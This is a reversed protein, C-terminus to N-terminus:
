RTCRDVTLQGVEPIFMSYCSSAITVSNASFIARTSRSEHICAFQMCDKFLSSFIFFSILLTPCCGSCLRGPETLRVGVDDCESLLGFNTCRALRFFPFTPSIERRRPGTMLGSCAPKTPCPM